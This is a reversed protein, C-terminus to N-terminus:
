SSPLPATENNKTPKAARHKAWRVNAAKIAAQRRAESGKGALGGLRGAAKVTM